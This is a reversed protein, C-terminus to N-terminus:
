INFLYQFSYKNNSYIIRYILKINLDMLSFHFIEIWRYLYLTIYFFNHQMLESFFITKNEFLANTKGTTIRTQQCERRTTAFYVRM